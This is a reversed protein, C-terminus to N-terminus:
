AGSPTHSSGQTLSSRRLPSSEEKRWRSRSPAWMCTAEVTIKSPGGGAVLLEAVVDGRAKVEDRAEALLEAEHGEALAARDPDVVGVEVEVVVHALGGQRRGAALLLQAVQGGAIKECCSSREFGSQSSHSTSPRSPSRKAITPLLWWARTSPTEPTSM